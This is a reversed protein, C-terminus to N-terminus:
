LAWTTIQLHWFVPTNANDANLQEIHIALDRAVRRADRRGPRHDAIANPEVPQHRGNKRRVKHGFPRVVIRTHNALDHARKEKNPAGNELCETPEILAEKNVEFVHVESDARLLKAPAARIKRSRSGKVAALAGGIRRSCCAHEI